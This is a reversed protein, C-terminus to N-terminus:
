KPSTIAFAACMPRRPRICDFARLMEKPPDCDDTLLCSTCKLQADDQDSEFGLAVDFVFAIKNAMCIEIIQAMLPEIQEDYIAEKTTAM